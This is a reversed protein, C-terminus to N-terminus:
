LKNLVISKLDAIEVRVRYRICFFNICCDFDTDVFTATAEMTYVKVM